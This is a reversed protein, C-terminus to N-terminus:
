KWKQRYDPHDTYPQAMEWLTRKAFHVLRPIGSLMEKQCRVLTHQRAQVDRLVRAPHHRAVHAATSPHFGGIEYQDFDVGDSTPTWTSCEDDGGATRAIHEDEDLRAHLFAILDDM